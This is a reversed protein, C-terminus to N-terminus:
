NEISLGGLKIRRNETLKSPNQVDIIRRLDTESPYDLRSMLIKLYKASNKSIDYKSLSIKLISTSFVIQYM